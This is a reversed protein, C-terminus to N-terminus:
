IVSNYYVSIRKSSSKLSSYPIRGTMMLM